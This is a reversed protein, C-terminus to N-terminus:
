KIMISQFNINVLRLETNNVVTSACQSGAVFSDNYFKDSSSLLPSNVYLSPNRETM